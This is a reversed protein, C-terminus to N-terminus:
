YAHSLNYKEDVIEMTSKPETQKKYNTLSEKLTITGTIHLLMGWKVIDLQDIGAFSHVLNMGPKRQGEEGDDNVFFDITNGCIFLRTDGKTFFFSGRTESRHPTFGNEVLYDIMEKTLANNQNM